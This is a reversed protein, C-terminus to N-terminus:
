CPGETLRRRHDADERVGRDDVVGAPDGKRSIRHDFNQKPGKSKAKTSAEPLTKVHRYGYRGAWRKYRPGSAHYRDVIDAMESNGNVFRQSQGSTITPHWASILRRLGLRLDQTGESSLSAKETRQRPRHPFSPTIIPPGKADAVFRRGAPAGRHRGCAQAHHAGRDGPRDARDAHGGCDPSM